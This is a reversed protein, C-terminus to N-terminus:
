LIRFPASMLHQVAIRDLSGSVGIRSSHNGMAGFLRTSQPMLLPWTCLMSMRMNGRRSPGCREREESSPTSFDATADASSRSPRASAESPKTAEGGAATVIANSSPSSSLSCASTQILRVPCVSSTFQRADSNWPRMTAAPEMSPVNRSNLTSVPCFMDTRLCLPFPGIRASSPIWPGEDRVESSDGVEVAVFEGRDGSWCWWYAAPPPAAPRTRATSVFKRRVGDSSSDSWSSSLWPPRPTTSAEAGKSKNNDVEFSSSRTQSMLAQAAAPRWRQRASTSTGQM